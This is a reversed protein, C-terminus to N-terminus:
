DSQKLITKSYNIQPTRAHSTIWREAFHLARGREEDTLGFNTLGTANVSAQKPNLRAGVQWWGAAAVKDLTLGPSQSYLKSLLWPANPEMADAAKFLWTSATIYNGSQYEAKGRLFFGTKSNNNTACLVNADIQAKNKNGQMGLLASRVCARVVTKSEAARTFWQYASEVNLSTGRGYYSMIGINYISVENGQNAAAKFFQMASSPNAVVGYEGNDYLWGMMNQADPDGSKALGELQKLAGPSSSIVAAWAANSEPTRADGKWVIGATKIAKNLFDIDGDAYALTSTSLMVAIIFKHVSVRNDTSTITSKPPMSPKGTPTGVLGQTIPVSPKGRIAM